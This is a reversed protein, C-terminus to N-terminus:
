EESGQEWPQYTIKGEIIERLAIDEPELKEL